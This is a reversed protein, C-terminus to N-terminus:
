KDELATKQTELESIETQRKEIMRELDKVTLAADSPPNKWGTLWEDCRTKKAAEHKTQDLNEYEEETYALTGHFEKLNPGSQNFKESCKSCTHTYDNGGGVNADIIDEHKCAPCLWIFKIFRVQIIVKESM